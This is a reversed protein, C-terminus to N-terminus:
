HQASAFQAPQPISRSLVRGIRRRLGRIRNERHANDFPQQYQKQNSNRRGKGSSCKALRLVIDRGISIAQQINKKAERVFTGDM